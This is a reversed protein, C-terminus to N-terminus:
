SRNDPRVDIRYGYERDVEIENLNLHIKTQGSAVDPTVQPPPSGHLTSVRLQRKTFAKEFTVTSTFSATQRRFVWNNIEPTGDLMDAAYRPWKITLRIQVITGPDLDRDFYMYARLKRNDEWEATTVIGTGEEGDESLYCADVRVADRVSAGLHADSNRISLSWIAPVSEPGAKITIDRVIYADGKHGVSVNEVWATTHFLDNNTEQARRIRGGYSKLVTTAKAIERRLYRRNVGLVIVVLFLFASLTLLSVNALPQIRGAIGIIALATALASPIGILWRLKRDRVKDEIWDALASFVQKVRQESSDYHVQGAFRLSHTCSM